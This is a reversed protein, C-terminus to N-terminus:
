SQSNAKGALETGLMIAVSKVTGFVNEELMHDVLSKAEKV